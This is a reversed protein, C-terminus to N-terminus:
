TGCAPPRVPGKTPTQRPDFRYIKATGVALPTGKMEAVYYARDPGRVISTPVADTGEGQARSSFVALTSIQGDSAVRLLANGGADVVIRSGRQALLGYPNTDPDRSRDPNHQEEYSGIDAVSWNAKFKATGTHQPTTSTARIASRSFREAKFQASGAHKS